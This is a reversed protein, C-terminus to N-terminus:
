SLLHASCDHMRTLKGNYGFVVGLARAQKLPWSSLLQGKKGLFAGM